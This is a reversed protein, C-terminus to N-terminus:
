EEMAAKIGLEIATDLTNKLHLVFVGRVVPNQIGGIIQESIGAVAAGFGLIAQNMGDGDMSALGIESNVPRVLEDHFAKRLAHEIAEANCETKHTQVSEKLKKVQEESM